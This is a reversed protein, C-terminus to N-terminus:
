QFFPFKIPIAENYYPIVASYIELRLELIRSTTLELEIKVCPIHTDRQYL